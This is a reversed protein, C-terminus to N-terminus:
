WGTRGRSAIARMADRTATGTLRWDAPKGNIPAGIADWYLFMFFGRDRLWAETDLLDRALAGADQPNEMRGFEVVALPKGKGKAWGYWRQFQPDSAATTRKDTTAENYDDVGLFDTADAGPWWADPTATTSSGPRWQYSMYVAGVSIHPNAAKVVKYFHRFMKVFTPGDMGENNEPEHYTTLYTTHDTPFSKALSRITADYDGAAVRDIKPAKVSHFTIVKEAADNAASTDQLSAPLGKSFSRRIRWPGYTDARDLFSDLDSEPRNVAAGIWMGDGAPTSGPQFAAEIANLNFGDTEAVLRLKHTGAKLAVEGLAVDEWAQWGGSSTFSVTGASKGDVELRLKKAGTVGSAVRAKFAYTGSKQATVKYALWEGAEIWGVNHGDGDAKAQIDVDDKRYKGGQNGKTTDHYGVGEGGPDYNEAQLRGPLLAGGQLYMEQAGGQAADGQATDLEAEDADAGGCAALLLLAATWGSARALSRSSRVLRSTLSRHVM